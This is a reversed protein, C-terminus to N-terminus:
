SACAITVTVDQVLDPNYRPWSCDQLKKNLLKELLESTIHPAMTSLLVLIKEVSERSLQMDSSTAENLFEMFAPIATNPKFLALREQVQKILINVRRTAQIDEQETITKPHILYAWLKNLFRKIGELGNDQWECDLEPPGMFLIYMRLVDSGYKEVIEDPNVVNGKSKSM